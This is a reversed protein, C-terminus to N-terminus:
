RSSSNTSRTAWPVPPTLWFCWTWARLSRLWVTLRAQLGDKQGKRWLVRTSLGAKSVQVEFLEGVMDPQPMLWARGGADTRAWLPQARGASYVAVAADPVARGAGDRVELRVRGDVALERRPLQPWRLRYALYEGFDANDDVVGASVPEDAPRAPAPGPQPPLHGRPSTIAPAAPLTGPAADARREATAEDRSGALSMVAAAAKGALSPGREHM